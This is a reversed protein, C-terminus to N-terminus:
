KIYFPQYFKATPYLCHTHKLTWSPITIVNMIELSIVLAIKSSGDGKWEM